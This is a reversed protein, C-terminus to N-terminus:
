FYLCIKLEAVLPHTSGLKRSAQVDTQFVPSVASPRAHPPCLPVCVPLRAAACRETWEAERFDSLNRFTRPMELPRASCTGPAAGGRWSGREAQPDWTDRRGEKLKEIAMGVQSGGGLRAAWPTGEGEKWM